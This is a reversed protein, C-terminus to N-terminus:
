GNPRASEKDRIQELVELVSPGKVGIRSKEDSKWGDLRHLVERTREAAQILRGLGFAVVAMLLWIPNASIAPLLKAGEQTLSVVTALYVLSALCGCFYLFFAVL